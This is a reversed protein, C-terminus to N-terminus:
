AACFEADPWETRRGIRRVWFGRPLPAPPVGIWGHLFMEFQEPTLEGVTKAPELLARASPELYFRGPVPDCILPVDVRETM